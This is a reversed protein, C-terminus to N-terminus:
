GRCCLDAPQVSETKAAWDFVPLSPRIRQENLPSGRGSFSKWFRTSLSLDGCEPAAYKNAPM